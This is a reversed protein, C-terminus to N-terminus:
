KCHNHIVQMTNFKFDREVSVGILTSDLLLYNFNHNLCWCIKKLPVWMMWLQNQSSQISAPIENGCLKDLLPSNTSPGDRIELYDDYSCCGDCTWDRANHIDMSLFNLLIVSGTPQSITYICDTSNPYNGPHSPSKIFGGTMSFHGGDGCEDVM